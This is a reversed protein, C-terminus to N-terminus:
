IGTPLPWKEPWQTKIAHRGMLVSSGDPSLRFGRDDAMQMWAPRQSLRVAVPHGTSRTERLWLVTAGLRLSAVLDQQRNLYDSIEPAAMQAIVSGTGNSIWDFVDPEPKMRQVLIRRDSLLQKHTADTCAMAYTPAALRRTGADSVQWHENWKAERDLFGSEFFASFESQMSACLDLDDLTIPAFAIGCSAPLAQDAPVESLMQLFLQIADQLRVGMVMTGVLTNSHAHLRRTTLVNACARELGQAVRGEVFDLAAATSWLRMSAGYSPISVYAQQPLDSWSYDYSSLAEDRELRQQHKILVAHIVERNSRVKDLCNSDRLACLLDKDKDLPALPPYPPQPSPGPLGNVQPFTEAWKQIRERDKAYLTDLQDYPVDFNVFWQLPFANRGQKPKLDAHLAALAQAQEATPPRLRGWTFAAILVVIVSAVLWALGKLVKQM